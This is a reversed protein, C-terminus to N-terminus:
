FDVILEDVGRKPVHHVGESDRYYKFDGSEAIDEVVVKEAPEGLAVVDLIEFRDPIKLEKRLVKKNIARLICGGLGKEVAGLLINQMAIGDDCYYIDSIDKDLLVVIYAAPREGKAPGPWDLLFGAWTLTPFILDNKEKSSSLYYKLPQANRGSASYRALEILDILTKRGIRNEEIFRRISRNRIILEKLDM